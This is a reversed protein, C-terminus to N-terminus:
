EYGKAQIFRKVQAAAIEFLTPDECHKATYFDRKAAEDCLDIRALAECIFSDEVIKHQHSRAVYLSDRM